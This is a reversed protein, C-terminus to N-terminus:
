KYIIMIRILDLSVKLFNPKLNQKSLKIADKTGYVILGTSIAVSAYLNVTKITQYFSEPGHLLYSILSLVGVGAFGMLSGYIAPRYPQITVDQKMKSLSYIATGSVVGGLALAKVITTTSYLILLPSIVVGSCVCLGIFPAINEFTYRPVIMKIFSRQVSSSSNDNSNSNSKDVITDVTEYKVKQKNFNQVSLFVGVLGFLFPLTDDILFLELSSHGVIVSGSFGLTSAIYIKKLLWKFPINREFGLSKDESNISNSVDNKKIEDIINSSTKVTSIPTINKGVTFKRCNISLARNNNLSSIASVSSFLPKKFNENINNSIKYFPIQNFKKIKSM